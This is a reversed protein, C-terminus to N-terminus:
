DLGTQTDTQLANVSLPGAGKVWEGFYHVQKVPRSVPKLGTKKNCKSHTSHSLTYLVFLQM